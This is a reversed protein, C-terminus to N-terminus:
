NLLASHSFIKNSVDIGLAGQLKQDLEPEINLTEILIERPWMMYKCNTEAKMSYKFRRGRKTSQSRLIWEASDMFENEEIYIGKIKEDNYIKIKGFILISLSSCKDREQCYNVGKQLDRLLSNKTLKQFEHRTMINIFMNQYIKERFPDFEIPRKSYLLQIINKINIIVYIYTFLYFDMSPKGGFDIAWGIFLLYGVITIIRLLLMNTTWYSAMFSIQAMQYWWSSAKNVEFPFFNYNNGDSIWFCIILFFGITMMSNFTINMIKICKKQSISFKTFEKENDGETSASSVNRDGKLQEDFIIVDIDEVLEESYEELKDLNNNKM